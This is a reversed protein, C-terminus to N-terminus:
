KLDIKVGGITKAVWNYILCGVYAGVFGSVGYMVPLFVIAAFGMMPFMTVFVRYMRGTYVEFAVGFFTLSIGVVVGWMVGGVAAIKAASMPDIRRLVAM